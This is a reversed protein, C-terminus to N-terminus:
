APCLRTECLVSPACCETAFASPCGIASTFIEGGAINRMQDSTLHKVSESKLSLKGIKTRKM